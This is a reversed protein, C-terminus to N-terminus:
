LMLYPLWSDPAQSNNYRSLFIIYSPRFPKRRLEMGSAEPTRDGKRANCDQCATVLNEWTDKGGQSKPIVHDITLNNKAGCYVCQNDDRRFINSRTLTVKQYPMKVYRYLRIVCPFKFSKSVSRLERTEDEVVLEAKKLFLLLFAREINCISLAQYDQNLVLVRYSM